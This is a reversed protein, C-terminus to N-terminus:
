NNNLIFVCCVVCLVKKVNIHVEIEMEDGKNRVCRMPDEAEQVEEDCRYVDREEGFRVRQFHIHSSALHGDGSSETQKHKDRTKHLITDDDHLQLGEVILALKLKTPPLLDNDESPSAPSILM